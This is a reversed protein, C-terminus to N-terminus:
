KGLLMAEATPTLITRKQTEANGGGAAFEWECETPLRYGNKSKNWSFIGSTSTDDKWIANGRYYVPEYGKYASYANLWVCAM